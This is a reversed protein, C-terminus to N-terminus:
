SAPHKKMLSANHLREKEGCCRTAIHRKTYEIKFSCVDGVKYFM